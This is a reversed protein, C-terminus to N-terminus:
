EASIQADVVKQMDTTLWLHVNSGVTMLQTGDAMPYQQYVVAAITDESTVVSSDYHLDGVKLAKDALTLSAIHITAGLCSPVIVQKTSNNREVILDVVTGKAVETGEKIVEGNVRQELVLENNDGSRYLVKGLKLGKGELAVRANRLSYDVLRPMKVKPRDFANITLLIKRGKKVKKGSAPIQEVIEGGRHGDHYVSDIVEYDLDSNRLELEISAVHHGKLDPVLVMKGSKTYADLLWGLIVFILVVAIVMFLLQWLFTKSRLFKFFTM